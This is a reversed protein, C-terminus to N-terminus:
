PIQPEKNEKEDPVLERFLPLHRYYVELMLLHMATVYHRGCVQGWHDPVAGYPNWSGRLTENKKEQTEELAEVLHNQWKMWREDHVHFMVQTAYYWYYTDRRKPDTITPLNGAIYNVADQFKPDNKDYNLYLEMLLGEATMAYSPKRWAKMEDDQPKEIPIYCFRAGGDIAAHQVWTNLKSFCSEPVNLGAMKASVLAMAQWGSVSTDSEGRWEGDNKEPTYRWGGQPGQAKVIFDVAKQAPEHLREDRTMGYAECLAIAAIGHSYIRSYRNTDTKESFLSGDPQQNRVLWNLGRNITEMYDNPVEENPKMHTYGAGLYTLLALGTAATDAHITGFGADRPTIDKPLEYPLANFSWRGDSLQNRELFQLGLEIIEESIPNGGAEEIMRRHNSRMRQRYPLTPESILNLGPELLNPANNALSPRSDSGEDADESEETDPNENKNGYSDETLDHLNESNFQIGREPVSPEKFRFITINELIDKKEADFLNSGSFNEPKASIELIEDSIGNKAGALYADLASEKGARAGTTQGGAVDKPADKSISIRPGDGHQKSTKVSYAGAAPGKEEGSGSRIEGLTSGAGGVSGEESTEGWSQASGSVINEGSRSVDSKLHAKEATKGTNEGSNQSFVARKSRKKQAVAELNVKQHKAAELTEKQLTINASPIESPANEGLVSVDINENPISPVVFSDQTVRGDKTEATMEPAAPESPALNEALNQANPTLPAEEKETGNIEHEEYMQAMLEMKDPTETTSVDPVPFTRNGNKEETETKEEEADMAKDGPLDGYYYDNIIVPPKTNLNLSVEHEKEAPKFGVVVGGFFFILSFHIVLSLVLCFVTGRKESDHMCGLYLLFTVALTGLGLLFPIDRYLETLVWESRPLEYLGWAACATGAATFLFLLVAEGGTISLVEFIPKLPNKM